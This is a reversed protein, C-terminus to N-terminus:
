PLVLRKKGKRSKSKPMAPTKVTKTKKQVPRRILRPANVNGGFRMGLSVRHRSDLEDVLGFAYNLFASGMVFGTGVSFAELERGGRYGARLALPGVQTEVGVAPNLESQNVHYLGDVMLLTKARTPIVLFSFGARAMAPLDNDTNNYKLSTGLNQYALGMQVRSHLPVAMGFDGAIATGKATEGIESSLYKGTIGLSVSGVKRAFGLGVTLDTQANVTRQNVGDFLDVDGANYYGVSLGLSGAKGPMGFLLQGYTDDVLGKQYLFSAHGNKLSDLSAPNYAFAEIDNTVASFAEGLAASRAGAAELLTLGAETKEGAQIPWALLMLILGSYISLKGSGMKM